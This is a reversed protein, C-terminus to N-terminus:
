QQQKYHVLPYQDNDIGDTCASTVTHMQKHNLVIRPYILLCEILGTILLARPPPLRTSRM